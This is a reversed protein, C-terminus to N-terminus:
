KGPKLNRHSIGCKRMIMLAEALECFILAITSLSYCIEISSDKVFNEHIFKDLTGLRYEKTIICNPLTSYGIIKLFRNEQRFHFLIALEQGFSFKTSNKSYVIQAKDNANNRKISDKNSLRVQGFHVNYDIRNQLILFIPVSLVMPKDYLETTNKPQQAESLLKENEKEQIKIFKTMIRKASSLLGMSIALLIASGVALFGVVGVL